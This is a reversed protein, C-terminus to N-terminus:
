PSRSIAIQRVREIKGKLSRAPKSVSEDPASALEDLVPRPDLLRVALSIHSAGVIEIPPNPKSLAINLAIVVSRQEGSSRLAQPDILLELLPDVSFRSLATSLGWLLAYRHGEADVRSMLHKLALVVERQEEPGLPEARISEPVVDDYNCPALVAVDPCNTMEVFLSLQMAAETRQDYDASPDAVM